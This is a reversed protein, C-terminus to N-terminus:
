RCLLSAVQFINAHFPAINKAECFGVNEPLRKIHAAKSLSFCGGVPFGTPPKTKAAPNLARTQSGM